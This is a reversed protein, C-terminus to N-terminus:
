IKKIIRIKIWWNRSDSFQYDLYKFSSVKYPISVLTSCGWPSRHAKSTASLPVQSRSLKGSKHAGPGAGSDQGLLGGAAAAWEEREEAWDAEEDPDRDEAWDDEGAREEQGEDWGDTEAEASRQRYPRELNSFWMLSETVLYSSGNLTFCVIFLVYSIIELVPFLM